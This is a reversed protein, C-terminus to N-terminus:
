GCFIKGRNDTKNATSNQEDFEQAAKQDRCHEINSESKTIQTSTTRTM